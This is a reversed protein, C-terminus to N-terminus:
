SKKYISLNHVFEAGILLICTSYYVWLLFLVFTSLPGYITGFKVISGVYWTFVHKAIELFITTFLAGTIAHIIRIKAKPFFIYIISSSFLVMLFPMLYSILFATAIGIKIEPYIHKLAKLFPVLSTAIFSVVLMLIILTIIILSVIISWLFNRKERVKFIINLANELSAFVQYSLLGYLIISFTGISKFRILKRLENTIESINEPFLHMLRNSFFEYFGEYYGLVFGFITILFICLPLFAMMFFYSISGALIIGGDRFFDIFSKTLLKFYKM